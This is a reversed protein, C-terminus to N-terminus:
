SIKRTKSTRKGNKKYEDQQKKIAELEDQKQKIEQQVILENFNISKVSKRKKYSMKNKNVDTTKISTSSTHNLNKKKKEM